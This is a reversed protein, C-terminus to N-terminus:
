SAATDIRAPPTPAPPTVAPNVTLTVPATTSSPANFSDGSYDATIAHTGAPLSSVPLTAVGNVLPAVGLSLGDALFDVVGTPTGGTVTATLTVTDGVIAPNPTVTVATTTLTSLTVTGPGSASFQYSGTAGDFFSTQLITYTTGATLPVALGGPGNDDFAALCGSDPAAPDFASYIAIMGDGLGPTSFRNDWFIYDGDVDVTLAQVRYFFGSGFPPFCPASTAGPRSSTPETGDLVYDFTITAAHAPTSGLVAATVLALAAVLSGLLRRM